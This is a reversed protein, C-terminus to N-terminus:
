AKSPSGLADAVRAKKGKPTFLDLIEAVEESDITKHRRKVQRRQALVFYAAEMERRFEEIAKAKDYNLPPLYVAEAMFSPPQSAEVNAIQFIAYGEKPHSLLMQGVPVVLHVEAGETNRDPQM